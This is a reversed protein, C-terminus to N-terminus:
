RSEPFLAAIVEDGLETRYIYAGDKGGADATKYIGKKCISAVVGSLAKGEIGSPESSDNIAWSWVDSGGDGYNNFALSKLVATENATLTAIIELTSM